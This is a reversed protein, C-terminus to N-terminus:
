ISGFFLAPGGFTARASSPVCWLCVRTPRPSPIPSTAFEPEWTRVARLPRFASGRCSCARSRWCVRWPMSVASTGDSACWSASNHGRSYLPLRRHASRKGCGARSLEDPWRLLQYPLEPPPAFVCPRRGRGRVAGAALSGCGGLVASGVLALQLTLLVSPKMVGPKMFLAIYAPQRLRLM